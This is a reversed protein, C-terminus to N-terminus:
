PSLKTNKIDRILVRLPENVISMVDDICSKIKAEFSRQRQESVVIRKNQEAVSAECKAIYKAMEERTMM